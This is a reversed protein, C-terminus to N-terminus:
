LRVIHHTARYINKREGYLIGAIHTVMENYMQFLATTENDTGGKERLLQLLPSIFPICMIDFLLVLVPHCM